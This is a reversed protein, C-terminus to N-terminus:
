NDSILPNPSALHSLMYLFKKVCRVQTQNEFGCPLLLSGTEAPQERDEMGKSHYVHGHVDEVSLYVCICVFPYTYLLSHIM